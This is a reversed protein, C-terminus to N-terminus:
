TIHPEVLAFLDDGLLTKMHARRDERYSRSELLRLEYTNMYKSIIFGLARSTAGQLGDLSRCAEFAAANKRKTGYALMKIFASESLISQDVLRFFIDSLLPPPPPPPSHSGALSKHIIALSDVAEWKESESSSKDGKDHPGPPPGHRTAALLVDFYLIMPVSLTLFKVADIVLKGRAVQSDSSSRAEAAVIAGVVSDALASYMVAMNEAAISLADINYISRIDSIKTIM